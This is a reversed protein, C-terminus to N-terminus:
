STPARQVIPPRAARAADVVQAVIRLVQEPMLPKELCPRGSATLFRRSADSLQDGTAFVFRSALDPRVRAVEDFLAPGDMDPMRLDCIVADYDGSSLRALADRARTVSDARLGGAELFEVVIECIGEEDDVVLVRGGGAAASALADEAEGPAARARACPLRVRFRAGGGPADDVTVTGGHATVIGYCLSLGIGNGSGAPKTTFFPDFIRGRVAEPVGRGSDSVELEVERNTALHRTRVAIRKPRDGAEGGELAQGANILLNVVVQNLQAPDGTLEPLDPELDRVLEADIRRLQYGVLELAQEILENLNVPQRSPPSERAMALFAKIIRACREAATHVRRARDRLKPDTAGDEILTAQGLVVSLPNNLEHAVGALLMGLASLKERQYLAERQRELEREANAQDTVDTFTCVITGDPLRERAIEVLRDNPFPHRYSERKLDRYAQLRREIIAEDDLGSEREGPLYLGHDLRNRILERVHTGPRGLERPYGVLDHLGQNTLVVRLDPDLIVIGQAIHGLVAELHKTREALERRLGIEDERREPGTPGRGTVSRRARAGGDVGAFSVAVAGQGDEWEIPTEAVEARLAAGAATLYRGSRSAPPRGGSAVARARELAAPQAEIPLFRLWTPEALMAEVTGYGLLRACAANAYLPRFDRHVLVAVPLRDTLRRFAGDGGVPPMAAGVGALVRFRIEGDADFLPSARVRSGGSGVNAYPRGALEPLGRGARTRFARNAFVILGALPEAAATTVALASPYDEFAREFFRATGDDLPRGDPM